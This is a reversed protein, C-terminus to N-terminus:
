RKKWASARSLNLPRSRSNARVDLVISMPRNLSSAPAVRFFAIGSRSCNSSSRSVRRSPFTRLIRVFSATRQSRPLVAHTGDAPGLYKDDREYTDDQEPTAAKGVRPTPQAFRDSVKPLAHAAV